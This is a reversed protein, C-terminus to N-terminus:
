LLITVWGVAYRDINEVGRYYILYKYADMLPASNKYKGDWKEKMSGSEFVKTGWRDFIKIHFDRIYMGQVFFSDNIGDGNPTFVNPIYLRSRPRLTADNSMSTISLNKDPNTLTGNRHAVVHYTYFPLSNLDTINDIFMTDTGSGTRALWGFNKGPDEIDIDYYQVGEPWDRYASWALEPKVDASTDIHLLITKGIKSYPGVDGCSDLIRLRYTYSNNQVDVKQDAESLVSSEVPRDISQFNIGDASKELLWNKVRVNPVTQWEVLTTKNNEVTARLINAPPVNAVHIPITAATDSWSVQLNGKEQIGEVLYVMKRYCVVGTDIYKLQAYPNKDGPVISDLIKFEPPTEEDQRYIKYQKVPWGVYSTWDLLAENVGPRADLNITCHYMSSSTDSKYECVNVARVLFCYSHHLNNLGREMYITDDVFLVSDLLTVNGNEDRVYILYKEFDYDTNKSFDIEVTHDDAVTVRYMVPPKPAVTDGIIIYAGNKLSDYCGKYNQVYLSVAYIGKKTYTHVPNQLTSSTGDGFLWLWSKIASDSLTEDKFQVQSGICRSKPAKLQAIIDGYKVSKVISNNCGAKNTVILKVQYFGNKKYIHTPSPRNDFTGDGLDWQWHVIQSKPTSMDSLTIPQGSCTSDYGFNATPVPLVIIDGIPPLGYSCSNDGIIISPAYTGPNNYVHTVTDNHNFPSGDGFDWEFKTATNSNAEFHVTVPRCGSNPDFSYKGIPGKIKVIDPMSIMSTCGLNDTIKLTVTFTGPVYYVKKPNELTSFSGDGFDWYWQHAGPTSFKSEDIFDATVPPCDGNSLHVMFDATDSTSPVVIPVSVTDACGTSDTVKLSVDYSGTKFIFTPQSNVSTNGNGFDWFYKFPKFGGKVVPVFEYIVSDCSSLNFQYIRAVPQLPFVFSSATDTCSVNGKLMTIKFGKSQDPPSQTYTYTVTRSTNKVIDGNGMDYYNSTLGSDNPFLDTLTVTLPVCGKVPSVSFKTKMGLVFIKSIMSDPKRCGQDNIAPMYVKYVGPSSYTHIVSVTDTYKHLSVELPTQVITTDGDGFAVYNSATDNDYVNLTVRFPACGITGSIPWISDKWTPKIYLGNIIPTPAYFSFTDSCRNSSDYAIQIPYYRGPKTYIHTPSREDSSDGDGFYYEVHTAGISKDIFTLRNQLACTDRIVSYYAWPPKVIILHPKKLTDPCTENNYAILTVEYVGPTDNWSVTLEADSTTGTGFDWWFSDAQVAGSGVNTLNIFHIHRLMNLCGSDPYAIFNAKPRQGLKIKGKFSSKCGNKTVITLTVKYIGPNSYTHAQPNFDSSTTGDGFDWSTSIIPDVSSSLNKFNITKPVCGTTDAPSFLASSAAAHIFDPETIKEVCGNADMVQMIITFYGGAVPFTHNVSEGGSVLTGDGFDWSLVHTNPTENTFSGIFPSQCLVSTASFTPLYTSSVKIINQMIITDSCGGPSTIVLKVTYSGSLYTHSPDQSTSSGGDGFDWSYKSGPPAGITTNKFTVTLPSCGGSSSMTFSAAPKGVYINQPLTKTTTCGMSDTVTLTVPFSGTSTYTKTPNAGTGTTGDGFEWSYTDYSSAPSVSSSFTVKFPPACGFLASATFNIAPPKDVYIYAPISIHSTCGNADTVGLSVTYTGSLAYVHGGPSQSPSTSGDGFDWLWKTIAGSGGTSLDSFSVSLPACGEKTTASFLATPKKFITISKTVSDTKGKSDTVILIINYTGPSIYIASADKLFSTNTNGLKWLYTYPPTGGTTANTFAESLPSCGSPSPVSFNAKPQAV